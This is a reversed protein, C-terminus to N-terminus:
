VRTVEVGKEMLRAILEPDADQTTIIRSASEVPCLTLSGVRGFKTDDALIILEQSHAIMAREAQIILPASNTLSTASIGQIGMFAKSAAYNHFPDPALNSLILQSEPDVIGEPLIVTCRTHRILHNAVAFSNTVVTLAFSALYEVMQFTTTGGDIFITEGDALYNVAERAIRRKKEQNITTRTDFPPISSLGESTEAGAEPHRQVGGRVRTLKKENELDIFDRRITSESAGTAEVVDHVSTFKHIEVLRLITEKRQRELM